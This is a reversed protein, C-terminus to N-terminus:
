KKMCASLKLSSLKEKVVHQLEAWVPRIRCLEESCQSPNHQCLNLVIPGEVAEIVQLLNIEQPARGLTYGGGKGRVPVVLGVRALQSFIKTLYQKPLKRRACVTDLTVPKQKQQGCDYHDALVLIGRVALEAAPSLKM